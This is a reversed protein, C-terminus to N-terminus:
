NSPSNFIILIINQNIQNNNNNLNILQLKLNDNEIKLNQILKKLSIIENQNQNQINLAKRLRLIESELNKNKKIEDNLKQELNKIKINKEDSLKQLNHKPLQSNTDLANGYMTKNINDKNEFNNNIPLINFCIDNNNTTIPARLNVLKELSSEMIFQFFYNQFLDIDKFNFLVFEILYQVIFNSNSDVSLIEYINDMMLIINNNKVFGFHVPKIEINKNFENILFNGFEDDIIEFDNIYILKKNNYLYIYNLVSENKNFNIAGKIDYQKISNIYDGCSENLAKCIIPYKDCFNQYTIKDFLEMIRYIVNIKFIEKLKNVINKNIIYAKTLQKQFINDESFFEKRFYFRKILHKLYSSSYLNNNNSKKKIINDYAQFNIPDKQYPRIEINQYSLYFEIPLFINNLNHKFNYLFDQNILVYSKNSNEESYLANMDEIIYNEIDAIEYYNINSNEQEKKIRDIIIVKSKKKNISYEKKIKDYFSYEKWNDLWLKDVLFGMYKEEQINKNNLMETIDRELKYYNIIDKYIKEADEKQFNNDIKIFSSKDIKNDKNNKFQLVKGNETFLIIKTPTIKYKIQHTNQYNLSCIKQHLAENIIIFKYNHNIQEMLDSTDVPKLKINRQSNCKNNDNPNQINNLVEKFENYRNLSILYGKHRKKDSNESNIRKVYNKFDDFAQSYSLIDIDSGM